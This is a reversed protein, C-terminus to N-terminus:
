RALLGLPVAGAGTITARQWTGTLRDLTLLGDALRAELGLNAVPPLDRYAVSADILSLTGALRPARLTGTAIADLQVSGALSLPATSFLKVVAAIDAARADLNVHLKEAPPLAGAEAQQTKLGFAGDATLRSSGTVLELGEVALGSSSYRVTAPAALAFPRDGLMVSTERLTVSGVTTALDDLHGNARADLSLRGTVPPLRGPLFPSLREVDLGEVRATLEFPKREDVPQVAHIETAFSPARADIVARQGDAGVTAEIPGLTAGRWTFDSLTLRATGSPRRLTGAGRAEFSLRGQVPAAAAGSANALPDVRLDRGRADLEYRGTSWAYRGTAELVGTPDQTATLREIRVADHTVRLQANLSDVRQGSARLNSSTVAADLVPRHMTGALKGTMKLAGTPREDPPTAPLLAAVQPVDAQLFGTVRGTEFSVSARGDLRGEKSALRLSAVTARTMTATGHADLQGTGLRSSELDRSTLKWSTRPQRLSGALDVNADLSGGIREGAPLAVGAVDLLRAVDAAHLALGGSLSGDRSEATAGPEPRSTVNWLEGGVRGRLTLGEASLDPALLWRRKAVTLALTGGIPVHRVAPGRTGTPTLTARVSVAWRTWDLAPGDVRVTGAARTAPRVPLPGAVSSLVRGVDLGRWTSELASRVSRDLGVTGRLNLEGDGVTARLQEVILRTPDISARSQLHIRELDAYALSDSSLDVDIRPAALEGRVIGRAHVVGRVPRASATQTRADRTEQGPLLTTLETVDAKVRYRLDLAPESTFLRLAGRGEIRSRATTLALPELQLGESTLRLAGKVRAELPRGGTEARLNAALDAAGPTERSVLSLGSLDLTTGLSRDTFRFTIDRLTLRGPDIAPSTSAGREGAPPEPLNWRGDHGRELVIAAHDASLSQLRAVGAIIAWPLDVQVRRATFFAPANRRAAAALRVDTLEITLTLLNYDLRGIRADIGYQRQLTATAWDAVRGRVPPTRLLAVMVALVLLLGAAAVLGIRLLRAPNVM